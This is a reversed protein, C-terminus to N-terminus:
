VADETLTPPRWGTSSDRLYDVVIRIAEAADNAAMAEPRYGFGKLRAMYGRPSEAGQSHTYPNRMRRLEHLRKAIGTSLAGRRELEDILAAFGSGALKDEGAIRFYAGLTHEVFAQATLVVALYNGWIYSRKLENIALFSPFGGWLLMHAPPGFESLIFRYSAVRDAMSESDYAKIEAEIEELTPTPWEPRSEDPM